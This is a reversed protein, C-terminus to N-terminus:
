IGSSDEYIDGWLLPIYDVNKEVFAVMREVQRWLLQRWSVPEKLGLDANLYKTYRVLFEKLADKKFRCGNDEDYEFEDPKFIKNSLLQVVLRDIVIARFEELIDLALSHRGYELSHYIGLSPDMSHSEILGGIEIGLLTYGLSILANVPDLPPRKSRKKFNWQREFLKSYIGFYSRTAFGEYGLLEQLTASGKCRPILDKVIQQYRAFEELPKHRHYNKIFMYQNLIKAYVIRRAVEMKKVTNSFLQYQKIRRFCNAGNATVVSGKYNGNITLFSIPINDRM